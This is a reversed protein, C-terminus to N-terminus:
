VAGAQQDGLPPAVPLRAPEAPHVAHGLFGGLEIHFNVAEKGRETAYESLERIVSKGRLMNKYVENIM